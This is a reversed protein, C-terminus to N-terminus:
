RGINIGHIYRNPGVSVDDGCVIDVNISRKRETGTKWASSKNLSLNVIIIIILMMGTCNYANHTNELCAFSIM